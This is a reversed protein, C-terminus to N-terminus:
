HHMTGKCRENQCLYHGGVDMKASPLSTSPCTTVRTGKRYAHRQSYMEDFSDNAPHNPGNQTTTEFPEHLGIPVNDQGQPSRTMNVVSFM